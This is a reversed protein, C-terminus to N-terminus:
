KRKVCNSKNDDFACLSICFIEKVPNKLEKSKCLKINEKWDNNNKSKYNNECNNICFNDVNNSLSKNTQYNHKKKLALNEKIEDNGVQQSLHFYPNEGKNLSSEFFLKKNENDNYDTKDSSYFKNDRDVLM